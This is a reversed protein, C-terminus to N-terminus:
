TTFQQALVYYDTQDRGHQDHEDRYTHYHQGGENHWTHERDNHDHWVHETMIQRTMSIAIM